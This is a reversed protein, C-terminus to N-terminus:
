KWSVRECNWERLSRCLEGAHHMNHRLLYLLKEFVSEFWHFGDQEMLSHQDYSLICESLSSKMDDLYSTVLDKTILPLIETEIDKVEDWDFGARGGWKMVDPDNGLYFEVTEVIHYATLSFHWGNSEKHWLNDPICRIADRVMEFSREFQRIAASAVSKQEKNM